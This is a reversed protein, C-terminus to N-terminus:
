IKCCCVNSILDKTSSMMVGSSSLGASCAAPTSSIALREALPILYPKNREEIMLKTTIPNTKNLTIRINSRIFRVSSTSASGVGVSFSSAVM